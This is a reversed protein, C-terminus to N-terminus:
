SYWGALYAPIFAALWIGLFILAAVALVKLVTGVTFRPTHADEIPDAVEDADGMRTLVAQIAADADTGKASEEELAAMLHEVLENRADKRERRSDIGRTAAKAYEEFEAPIRTM